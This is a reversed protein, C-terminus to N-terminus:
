TFFSQILPRTQSKSHLLYVWTYRSFDDVITVFYRSGNISQVSFPGWIDCHILEFISHSLSTSIPFSLRRQQALPCVNCLTNSNCSISPVLDHLLNIRSQSIHGLRYHWIDATATKFSTSVSANVCAPISPSTSQLAPSHLKSDQLLYFLGGKIKDM